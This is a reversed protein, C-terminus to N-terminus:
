LSKLFEILSSKDDDSLDAGYEHGSNSNGSKSTDFVFPTTKSIEFVFGVKEPDYNSNGAAFRKPRDKAPGLLHWLTPVSGNHLYPATSWVGKLSRAAYGDTDRWVNPHGASMKEAAEASIGADRNAADLYAQSTKQLAEAFSKGGLPKLYNQLRNPDTGLESLPYISAPPVDKADVMEPRHCKACHEKFVTEGARVKRTDFYGLLDTPWTPAKLKAALEELRALNTTSVTSTYTESNFAAGGALATLMSRGMTSSTNGDWDTFEVGDLDFLPPISCPGTMPEATAAGFLLNRGTGFDDARGPGGHTTPLNLKQIAALEKAFAIRGRLLRAVIFFEESLYDIAKSKLDDSVGKLDAKLDSLGSSISGQVEQELGHLLGGRLDKKAQGALRRFSQMLEGPAADSANESLSKLEDALSKRAATDKMLHSLIKTTADHAPHEKGRGSDWLRHMFQVLKEPEKATAGASAFLEGTFKEVDFQSSGGVIVVAGSQYSVIGTHCASCNMGVMKGVGRVDISDAATLGIPLGDKNAPDPVLGFREVNELFPKGTKSSILNQMWRLPFLESGMTLHFFETREGETLGDEIMRVQHVQEGTSLQLAQSQDAEDVAADGEADVPQPLDEDGCGTLLAILCAFILPSSIAFWRRGASSSDDPAAPCSFRIPM